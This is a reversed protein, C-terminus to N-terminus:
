GTVEDLEEPPIGCSKGLWLPSMIEGAQEPDEEPDGQPSAQLVMPRRKPPIKVQYRIFWRSQRREIYLLLPEGRPREWLVLSRVMDRQFDM